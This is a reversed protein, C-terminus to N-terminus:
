MLTHEIAPQTVMEAFRERQTTEYHAQAEAALIKAALPHASIAEEFRVAALDLDEPSIGVTLVATEHAACESRLFEVSQALDFGKNAM